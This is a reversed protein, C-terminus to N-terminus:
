SVFRGHMERSKILVNKASKNRIRRALSFTHLRSCHRVSNTRAAVFIHLNSAIGHMM